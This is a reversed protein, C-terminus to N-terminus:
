VTVAKYDLKNYGQGSSTLDTFNIMFVLEGPVARTPLADDDARDSANGDSIDHM